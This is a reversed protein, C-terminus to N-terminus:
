QKKFNKIFKENQYYQNRYFRKYNNLSTLDNAIKVYLNEKKCKILFDVESNLLKFDEPKIFLDNEVMSKRMNDSLVVCSIWQFLDIRLEKTLNMMGSFNGLNNKSIVTNVAIILKKNQREREKVLYSINEIIKNFSEGRVRDNEEKNSGDLSFTLFMKNDRCLSVLEKCIEKNLLTGNTTIATVMGNKQAFELIKLTDKRLFIEGGLPNFCNIKMKIANQLVKIIEPYSMEPLIKRNNVEFCYKCNLNCRKTLMITLLNPKTLPYNLYWSLNFLLDSKRNEIKRKIEQINEM